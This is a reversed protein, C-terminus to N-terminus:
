SIPPVFMLGSDYRSAGQEVYLSFTKVTQHKSHSGRFFDELLFFYVSLGNMWPGYYYKKLSLARGSNNQM